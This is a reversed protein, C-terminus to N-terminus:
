ARKDEGDSRDACPPCALLLPRGSVGDESADCAWPKICIPCRHIEWIKVKHPDFGM